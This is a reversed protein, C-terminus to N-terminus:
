LKKARRCFERYAIQEVYDDLIFAPRAFMQFLEDPLISEKFHEFRIMAVLARVEPYEISDDNVIALLDKIMQALEQPEINPDYKIHGFSLVFAQKVYFKFQRADSLEKQFDKDSLVSKIQEFSLEIRVEKAPVWSLNYDLHLLHHTKNKRDKM